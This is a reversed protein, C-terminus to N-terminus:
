PESFVTLDDGEDFIGQIFLHQGEKHLTEYEKKYWDFIWQQRDHLTPDDKPANKILVIVHDFKKLLKHLVKKQKDGFTDFRGIIAATKM